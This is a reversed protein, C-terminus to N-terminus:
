FKKNKPGKIPLTFQFTSGKGKGESDAWISGDHAEVVRKAIFLGLGSGDPNVRSMGEGRAFKGFLKHAEEPNIGLGTDKVKVIVQNELYRDITVKVSGSPTYKIANDVLNLIVDAVKSEDAMVPPVQKDPKAFTLKLGKEKAINIVEHVETEILKILDIKALDLSFRGSEIRSVNLFLNILRIMRKSANLLSHLISDIRPNIKGFDGSTLMSLYGMIGTMPTRLQHSAISIFESKAEDLQRLHKNVEELEANASQIEEFLKLNRAVIGTQDALAKMMEIEQKTIEGDPKELVFDIVGTVENESFIPVAVIAGIKLLKNIGLCIAKPIPPSIFQEFGSGIKIKGEKIALGDLTKDDSFRSSFEKFPKPLLKLVKKILKSQTIAQPYVLDKKRDVMLLLGGVFGIEQAISDVISQTVKDFDLSRTVLSTVNQLAALYKNREQLDFNAQRLDHTARKVEDKLKLSFSKVEDYLKAKEIASGIQPAIVGFLEIDQNSFTDGSLKRGMILIANMRNQTTVPACAYIQYKEMELRVKELYSRKRDDATDSILRDLEELIVVGKEKRVYTILPNTKKLIIFENLYIKERAEYNGRKDELIILSKDIKLLENLKQTFTRTLRYIDIEVSAIESLRRLAEPYDIASKFFIKDTVKGLFKKLPDLGLVILLAVGLSTLIANGGLAEQFYTGIIFITGSFALTVALILFFYIISRSIIVRIDMLRHKVIAYAIFLIMVLTASPGIWVLEYYGFLPLVANSLVGVFATIAIGTFVYRIQLKYIGIAFKYQKVLNIIAWIIFVIIVFFLIYLGNGTILGYTGIVIDKLVFNPIFIIVLCILTGFYIIVKYAKKFKSSIQPFIFSFYLIGSATLLPGIYAILSLFYLAVYDKTYAYATVSIIWIIVGLVFVGFSISVKNRKKSLLLAIIIISLLLSFAQFIVQFIM